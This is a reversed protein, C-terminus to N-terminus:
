GVGGVTTLPVSWVTDDASEVPETVLEDPLMENTGGSVLIGGHEARRALLHAYSVTDGWVDFIMREEGVMGITVPGTHVGIAADLGSETRHGFEEIADRADTAFTVVRPAHDIYPRDHGCSAFYADGVVKIRDLGHQEALEDLEAHLSEVLERGAAGERQVLDGLGLVVVVAVSTQAIQDLDDLDGTAVREAVAPPLMQQMLVLREERAIALRGHQRRLLAAMQEFSAALYHFELPSSDRLTLPETERDPDALRDSIARVPAMTRNAWGVAFFATVILFVATGVVLLNRFDIIATEAEEVDIEAIVLWRLQESIDSAPTDFRTVNSFVDNGDISVRGAVPDDSDASTAGAAISADTARLELVTTGRAEIASRETETLAGSAVSADLFGVPDDLYSRPDTRVTGDDGVFYADATEDFGAGDWDGGNSTIDTLVAGDYLFALVGALDGGDFVPTAYVGVPEGPVPDYFSLDSTAAGADPDDLVRSVTNALVSGSFPGSQLSTGLDIRKEVSYVIRENVPEVLYLDSFQLEDVFRRFGPHVAAHTASWTSGDEADDITALREVDDAFSYQDQLYIAETTRPALNQASLDDAALEFLDAYTADYAAVLRRREVIPDFGDPARLETIADDFAGIAEATAPSLALADAARGASTMASAVGAGTSNNLSVLRNEYIERGLSLGSNIGITTAAALAAFSVILTAGALRTALSVGRPKRLKREGDGSGGKGM